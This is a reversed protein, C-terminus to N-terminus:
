LYLEVDLVAQITNFDDKSVWVFDQHDETFTSSIEKSFNSFNGCLIYGKSLMLNNIEAAFKYRTEIIVVRPKPNFGFGRLVEMEFGEVDLIFIDVSQIQNEDLLKDLTTAPVEITAVHFSLLRQPILNIMRGIFSTRVRPTRSMLDADASSMLSGQGFTGRIMAIDDSGVLAVNALLDNPRNMKLKEFSIPSPEILIGSWLNKNLSLTNSHSVGDHAGAEIYVGGDPFASLALERVLEALPRPSRASMLLM